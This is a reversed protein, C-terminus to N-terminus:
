LKAAQKIKKRMWNPFVPQVIVGFFMKIPIYIDHHGPKIRQVILTASTTASEQKNKSSKDAIKHGLIDNQRM